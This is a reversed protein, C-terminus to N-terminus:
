PSGGDNFFLAGAVLLRRNGMGSDTGWWKATPDVPKLNPHETAPDPSDTGGETEDDGDQSPPAAPNRTIPGKLFSIGYDVGLLLAIDM